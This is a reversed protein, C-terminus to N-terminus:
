PPGQGGDAALRRHLAEGFLLVDDLLAVGELADALLEVHLGVVGLRQPQVVAVVGQEAVDAAVAGLPELRPLAQREWVRVAELLAAPVGDRPHAGGAGRDRRGRRPLGFFHVDGRRRRLDRWRRLGHAVADGFALTLRHVVDGPQREAVA